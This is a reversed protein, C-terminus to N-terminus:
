EDGFHCNHEGKLYMKKKKSLPRFVCVYVSAASHSAYSLHGVFPIREGGEKQQKRKQFSFLETYMIISVLTWILAESPAM